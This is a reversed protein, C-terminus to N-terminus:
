KTDTGDELLVYGVGRITQINAKAKRDALAKRLRHVYVEVANSAVDGELGFIQDEVLKKSVVNGARRMLLELVATERASLVQPRGDIFIQRSETDLVVNAVRLSKGLLQGPRRLLAHLRAVLEEFAFPKVLYDDAGAHLGTVRDHVGGRATLVLVPIPDNRRRLQHVISLGDGDPLGLDLILAAYRMYGLVARAEDMTGLLDVDFGATRLGGALLNALEKNDEVVLVRM